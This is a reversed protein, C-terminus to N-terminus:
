NRELFAIYDYAREFTQFCLSNTLAEHYLDFNTGFEESDNRIIITNGDQYIVKHTAPRKLTQAIYDTKM